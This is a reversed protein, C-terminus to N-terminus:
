HNHCNKVQSSDKKEYAGHKWDFSALWINM